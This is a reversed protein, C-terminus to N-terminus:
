YSVTVNVIDTYTGAGPNSWFLQTEVGDIFRLADNLGVVKHPQPVGSGVDGLPFGFSYTGALGSDGWEQSLDPHVLAYPLFNTGDSVRRFTGDYNQGADLAIQYPLGAPCNVSVDGDVVTTSVGPIHDFSVGATSVTCVGQVTASVNLIATEVGANVGFAGVSLALATMLRFQGRNM